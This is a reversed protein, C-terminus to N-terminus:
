DIYETIERLAEARTKFRRHTGAFLGVARRARGGHNGRPAYEIAMVGAEDKLFRKIKEMRRAEKKKPQRSILFCPNCCDHIISM